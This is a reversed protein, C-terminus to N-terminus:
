AAARARRLRQRLRERAHLMAVQLGGWLAADEGLTPLEIRSSSPVIGRVVRRVQQLLPGGQTILTGGLVVLSPDLVVCLNAVAMGVLKAAEDVLARARREGRAAAQFLEAVRAQSAGASARAPRRRWRAALADLGVLTELCGRAGFDTAAHEPGMCMLAIEGAQFHHGRHLRGGVVVGAGIGTGVSVFACTDHGRAAGQWREGLIALNVDNEVTVPAQLARSLLAGMPVRQWGDLNPALAVVVGREHDVAGPAGAAVALLRGAPVRADGLLARLQQAVQALLPGPRRQVPTPVVRQSLLEGRLDGLALRTREPQLDISAVFGYRANLEMCAPRRGGSSPGAGLDRLLGSRILQSSLSGVTPASLSTADILEARTFPGRHELAALLVRDLNLGRLHAAHRADSDAGLRMETVVTRSAM